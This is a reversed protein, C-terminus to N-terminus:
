LFNVRFIWQFSHHQLQLELVRAVQHSSSIWQFLGQHQSLNLAPPSPSSLSHSPQIADSVWHVYIQAFELLYHLVSSGPTGYDMPDCLTPCPKAASCCCCRSFTDTNVHESLSAQLAATWPTVFLWVRSLSQVSSISFNCKGPPGAPLSDAQLTPSRPEIERSSGRSFSIAVWELIRAQLIRHVSPGPPSSDMPDCLTPCLQTSENESEFSILGSYENSPSISFSFSWYKPSRIHVASASSFVRISPFTSPPLLLPCCILHNSPMVSKISM